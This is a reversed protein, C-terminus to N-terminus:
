AVPWFVKSESESKLPRRAAQRGEARPSLHKLFRDRERASMRPEGRGARAKEEAELARQMEFHASAM